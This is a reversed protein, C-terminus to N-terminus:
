SGKSGPVSIAPGSKGPVRGEKVAKVSRKATRRRQTELLGILPVLRKLKQKRPM